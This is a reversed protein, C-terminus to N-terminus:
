QQKSKRLLMQQEFCYRIIIQRHKEQIDVFKISTTERQQVKTEDTRVVVGSVEVYHREGSNLALVLTLNVLTGPAMSHGSRLLVSVGGGSLDRSITTFHKEPNEKEKVAIDITTDIRVYQRRQIKILENNGPFTLVLVPINMKRRAAVETKFWYVAENEGVFSANFPTGEFFFATKQTDIKVPYDIYVYDQTFDVLKCKFREIEEQDSKNLELTLSTGVKLM